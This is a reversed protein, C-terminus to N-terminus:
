NSASPLAIFYDFAVAYLYNIAADLQGRKRLCSPDAKRMDVLAEFLVKFERVFGDRSAGWPWYTKKPQLDDCSAPKNPIPRGDAARAFPKSVTPTVELWMHHPRHRYFLDTRGQCFVTETYAPGRDENQIVPIHTMSKENLTISTSPARPYGCGRGLYIEHTSGLYSPDFPILVASALQINLVLFLCKMANMTTGTRAIISNERGINLVM